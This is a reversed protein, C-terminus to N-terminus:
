QTTTPPEEKPTSLTTTNNANSNDNQAKSSGFYYGLVFNTIGVISTIVMSATTDNAKVQKFLLIVFIGVSAVTWVIAIVSRINNKLWDKERM